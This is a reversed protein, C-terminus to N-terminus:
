RVSETQFRQIRWTFLEFSGFLVATYVLDGALSNRYFPIGAAFCHALGNMTAPYWGQGCGLLWVGFNSIFFFLTSGAVSALM